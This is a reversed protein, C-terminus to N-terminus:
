AQAAVPAALTEGSSSHKPASRPKRSTWRGTCGPVDRCYWRVDACGSGGDAVMETVPLHIACLWCTEVAAQPPRAVSLRKAAM